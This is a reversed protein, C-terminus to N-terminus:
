TKGICEEDSCSDENGFKMSSTTTHNRNEMEEEGRDNTNEHDAATTKGICAAGQCITKSASSMSTKTPTRKINDKKVNKNM